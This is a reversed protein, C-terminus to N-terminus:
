LYLSAAFVIDRKIKMIGICLSIYWDFFGKSKLYDQFQVFLRLSIIYMYSYEINSRLESGKKMYYRGMCYVNCTGQSFKNELETNGITKAAQCMQRLVEELRRICRIISGEFVDTM